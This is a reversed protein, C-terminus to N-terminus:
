SESVSVVVALMWSRERYLRDEDPESDQGASLSFGTIGLAKLDARSGAGLPTTFLYMLASEVELIETTWGAAATVRAGVEFTMEQKFGRIVTSGRKASRGGQTHQTEGLPMSKVWMLVEREKPGTPLDPFDPTVVWEGWAPDTGGLGDLFEVLAVFVDRAFHKPRIETISLNGM